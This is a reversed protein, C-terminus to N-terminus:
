RTRWSPISHLHLRSIEATEHMEDLCESVVAALVNEEERM